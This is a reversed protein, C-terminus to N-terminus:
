RRLTSILLFRDVAERWIVQTIVGNLSSRLRGDGALDVLGLELAADLRQEIGLRAADSGVHCGSRHSRECLTAAM